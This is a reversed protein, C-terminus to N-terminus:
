SKLQEKLTDNFSGESSGKNVRELAEKDKEKQVRKVSLRIKGEDLMTLAAEIEEGIVLEAAKKPYLDETRILGDVGRALELFVGFEKIDRIKGKVIDGVQHTKAYAKVPNESLEKLSLSIKEKEPDIKIIKVEIEDGKKLIDKCKEDRFWSADENHLLGEVEGIKVFAGFDTISTVVGKVNQGVTHGSSFKDFPKPMLRKVSLRLRRAEVDLEIIEANLEQGVSIVESPHKINKQWSIESIHLFGEIDNGIDLFAGYNEINSVVAKVADGVELENKIDEWPDQTAAKISFSLHKKDKDYNIAKVKVTDGVNYLTAPNVPGKFSIENYHVLGDVGNVEVFMGYSAIKKVVGEVIEGDDVLKKITEKKVKRKDNLIKKRSLVISGNTDDIKVIAATIKKGIVDSEERRILALSNPLFFEVGEDNEVIFGGKNKRVIKGEVIIEREEYDKNAEIFSTQLEKKVANKYSIIPRENKQGSIAVPIKDGVKFKLTGDNATIESIPVRGDIKKGVDVTVYDDKIEVIIGEVIRESKENRFSEELLKAFDEEEGIEEFGVSGQIM